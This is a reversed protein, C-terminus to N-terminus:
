RGVEPGLIAQTLAIRQLLITLRSDGALWGLRELERQVAALRDYANAWNGCVRLRDGALGELLRLLAAWVLGVEAPDADDRSVVRAGRRLTTRVAGVRQLRHIAERACAHTCGASEMIARETLRSGPPHRGALIAAIIDQTVAEPDRATSARRTDRVDM